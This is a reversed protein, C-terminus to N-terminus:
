REIAHGTTAIGFYEITTNEDKVFEDCWVVTGATDTITFSTKRGLGHNITWILSPTTQSYEYKTRANGMGSSLLVAISNVGPPNTFVLHLINGTKAYGYVQIYEPYAGSLDQVQWFPHTTGLNHVVDFETSLGDGIYRIVFEGPTTSEAPLGQPGQLNQTTSAVPTGANDVQTVTLYTGHFEAELSDGKLNQSTSTEHGEYDTTTVELTTDTFEASIGIQGLMDYTDTDVTQGAANVQDVTLTNGSFSAELSDGKLNQQTTAVVHGDNRVQDVTLTTTGNFSARLSDGLLNKQVTTDNGNYDTTTIKLTTDDFRASIGIEGLMDYTDTDVVAGTHDTETITLDNGSFSASISNGTDGKLDSQTTAVVQGDNRVQEVTLTTTGNFSARLSDGLLNVAERKIVTGANDVQTVTLVSGSWSFTLSDGLLNVPDSQAIVDGKYDVVKVVLSTGEWEYDFSDGKLAELSVDTTSGNLRIFTMVKTEPDFTVQVYALMVDPVAESECDIAQVANAINYVLKNFSYLTTGQDDSYALQIALEYKKVAQLIYGPILVSNHEDLLLYPKYVAKGSEDKVWVDFEVRGVSGQPILESHAVDFVLRTTDNDGITGIYYKPCSRDDSLLRTSADFSINVTFM